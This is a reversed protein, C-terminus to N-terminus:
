KRFFGKLLFFAFVVVLAVFAGQIIRLMEKNLWGSGAEEEFGPNEQEIVNSSSLSKQLPGVYTGVEWVGERAVTGDSFLQKGLGNKKGAKFEGYYTLGAKNTYRGSGEYEGNVFNGVYTEGTEYYRKGFGDQKGVVFRGEWLTGGPTTIKGEGHIVADKFEGFYKVGKELLAEGYGNICDGVLCKTRTNTSALKKRAGTSKAPLKQAPESATLEQRNSLTRPEKQLSVLRGNEWIGQRLVQGASLRIGWGDWCNGVLCDQFKRLKTENFLGEQKGFITKRNRSFKGNVWYGEQEIEGNSNFKIGPGSRRGKLYEGVMLTGTKYICSATGSMRGNLWEGQCQDGDRDIFRGEGQLKGNVYTGVYIQGRERKKISFSNQCDGYVCTSETSYIPFNIGMFFLVLLLYKM